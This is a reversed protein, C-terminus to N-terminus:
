LRYRCGEETLLGKRSVSGQVKGKRVSRREKEEQFGMQLWHSDQWCTVRKIDLIWTNNAEAEM